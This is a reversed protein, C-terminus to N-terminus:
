FEQKIVEYDVSYLSKLQFPTKVYIQVLILEKNNVSVNTNKHCKFSASLLDFSQWGYLIKKTCLKVDHCTIRQQRHVSPRPQLSGCQEPETPHTWSGRPRVRSESFVSYDFMLVYQEMQHIDTFPACRSNRAM